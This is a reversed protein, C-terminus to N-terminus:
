RQGDPLLKYRFAFRELILHVHDPKDGEKILDKNAGIQRVDGVAKELAARDEDTLEAGHELKSIFPNAM